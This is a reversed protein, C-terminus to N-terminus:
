NSLWDALLDNTILHYRTYRFAYWNYRNRTKYKTSTKPKNKQKDKPVFCENDKANTEAFMLKQVQLLM